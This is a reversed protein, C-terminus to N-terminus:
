LQLIAFDWILKAENEATGVARAAGFTSFTAYLLGEM